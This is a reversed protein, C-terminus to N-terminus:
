KNKNPASECFPVDYVLGTTADVWNNEMPVFTPYRQQVCEVYATYRKSQEALKAREISVNNIGIMVIGLVLLWAATFGLGIYINRM